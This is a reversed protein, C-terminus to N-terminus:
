ESVSKEMQVEAVAYLPVKNEERHLAMSYRRQWNGHARNIALSSGCLLHTLHKPNECACSATLPIEFHLNQSFRRRLVRRERSSTKSFSDDTKGRQAGSAEAAGRSDGVQPKPHRARPSPSHASLGRRKEGERERARAARIRQNFERM